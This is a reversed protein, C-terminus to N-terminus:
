SHRGSRRHWERDIVVSVSATPNAEWASNRCRDRGLVPLPHGFGTAPYTRVPRRVTIRPRSITPRRTTDDKSVSAAPLTTLCPVVAAGALSSGASAARQGQAQWRAQSSCTTLLAHRHSHAVM